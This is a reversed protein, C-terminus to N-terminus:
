KKSVNVDEFFSMRSEQEESDSPLEVHKVEELFYLEIANKAARTEAMNLSSGYGEGIRDVGSYVGVVFVPATSLRGTEKLLRAVPRPKGLRRAILQLLLKPNQLALHASLDVSRTLFHARIFKRAYTPGKEQYLAGILAALVKGSVVGGAGGRVQGSAEGMDGRGGKWRMVFSVGLTKAVATLAVQGTYANLLSELADGPLSPFKFSLFETVYFDLTKTGIIRYRDHFIDGM